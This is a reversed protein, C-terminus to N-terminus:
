KRVLRVFGISNKNAQAVGGELFQVAWAFASESSPSSSWSLSSNVEIAGPQNPFRNLNAAPLHCQLEVLTALEKINPLRWDSYGLPSLLNESVARQLATQWIFALGQGTGCATGSLGEICKKWMLGTVNDSVSGDGNDTFRSDPATEALSADCQQGAQAIVSLTGFLVGVIIKYVVPKM